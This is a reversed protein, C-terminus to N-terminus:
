IDSLTLQEIKGPIFDVLKGLHKGSVIDFMHIVNKSQEGVYLIHRWSTIGTPHKFHHSRYYSNKMEFTYSDISYVVGGFETTRCGVFVIGGSNSQGGFDARYHLGVPSSVPIITIIKGSDVSVIVVGDLDENAIWLNGNVFLISRVGRNKKSHEMPEGFQVFTGDFYSFVNRNLSYYSPNIDMSEFTDRQFRLVTDTHQFSAYLNGNDDFCIGYTHDVGDNNEKRIISDVFCWSTLDACPKYLLVQSRLGSADAVYLARENKYKGIVMSRLESDLHIFKDGGVLVNESVLRGNRNYKLINKVEHHVTVYLYPPGNNNFMDDDQEEQQQKRVVASVSLVRCFTLFSVLRLFCYLLSSAQVSM